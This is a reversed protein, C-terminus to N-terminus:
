IGAPEGPDNEAVSIFFKFTQKGWYLSQFADALCSCVASLPRQIDSHNIWLSLDSPM